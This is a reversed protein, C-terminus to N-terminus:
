CQKVYHSPAMLCCDMVQALALRSTHQLKADSPWLSNIGHGHSGPARKVLPKEM